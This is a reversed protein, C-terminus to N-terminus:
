EFIRRLWNEMLRITEWTEERIETRALELYHIYLRSKKRNLELVLTGPTLTIVTSLLFLAVRNKLTYDYSIVSSELSIGPWMGFFALKYSAQFVELFVYLLFVIVFLGRVLLGVSFSRLVDVPLVLVTIAVVLIGAIFTTPGYQGAYILWAAFLLIVVPFYKKINAFM